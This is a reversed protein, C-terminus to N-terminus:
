SAWTHELVASDPIEVRTLESLHHEIVMRGGNDGHAKLLEPVFAKDFLVPHGRMQAHVPVVLSAHQTKYARILSVIIDTTIFPRNGLSLMVAQIRCSLMKLGCRLSKSLGESYDGNLALTVNRNRLERRTRTDFDGLVTIIESVGAALFSDVIGTLPLPASFSTHGAALVVAAVNIRGAPNSPPNVPPEISLVQIMEGVIRYIVRVDNATELLHLGENGWLKLGTHPSTGLQSLSQRTPELESEALALLDHYAQATLMVRFM